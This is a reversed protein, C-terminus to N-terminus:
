WTTIPMSIVLLFAMMVNEMKSEIADQWLTNRNKKNIAVVEEVMKSLKLGFNIPGKLTDLM